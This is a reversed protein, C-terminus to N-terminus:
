AKGTCLHHPNTSGCHPCNYGDTGPAPSYSPQTTAKLEAIRDTLEHSHCINDAFQLEDIRAKTILLTLQGLLDKRRLSGTSELSISSEPFPTHEYVWDDIKLIDEFLQNAQEEITPTPPTM